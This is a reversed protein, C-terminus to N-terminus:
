LEGIYQWGNARLYDMMEAKSQRAWYGRQMEFVVRFLVGLKNTKPNYWVTM